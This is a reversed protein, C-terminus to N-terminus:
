AAATLAPEPERVPEARRVETLALVGGSLVLGVLTLAPLQWDWDLPAHVFYVVVAAILGASLEPARRHALRAAWAIGALFVALLALGVLGLEAMTQLPLSHADRAFGGIKRYRLWWVAWGGAGVGRIPEASFAKLAVNWYAYRDSRLTTLRSVGGGLITQHSTEKAGLVIALALGALIVALAIQPARRPLALRETGRRGAAVWGAAAALATILVLLAFTIAGQSERQGLSGSLGTVGGFPSGAVAALVGAAVTM